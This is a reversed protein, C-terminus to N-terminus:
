SNGALWNTLDELSDFEIVQPEPTPVYAGTATSAVDGDENNSYFREDGIITTLRAYEAMSELGLIASESDTENNNDARLCLVVSGAVGIASHIRSLHRVIDLKREPALGSAYFADAVHIIDILATTLGEMVNHLASVVQETLVIQDGM